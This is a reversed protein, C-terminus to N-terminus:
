HYGLEKLMQLQQPDVQNLDVLPGSVAGCNQIAEQLLPVMSHDPRYLNELEGPDKDLRYLEHSGSVPRYIYKWPGFHLSYSEAERGLSDGEAHHVEAYVERDPLSRSSDSGALLAAASAGDVDAFRDLSWGFLSAVTPLVDILRLRQEIRAGAPVKPGALIVPVHLQEEYLLGHTYFSHEGFAEGHDAVVVVLTQQLQNLAQLSELIRGLQQDMFRIEADYLDIRHHRKKLAARLAPHRGLRGQEPPLPFSVQDRLFDIPPLFSADHADFFHVLLAFPQEGKAHLWELVLETTDDAPRQPADAFRTLGYKDKTDQLDDHYEHFGRALGYHAGMPKASVFAATRLGEAAFLEAFSAVEVTLQQRGVIFLSRVGHRFPHCGTLLSAASVPTLSSSAYVRTLLAGEQALGDLIPTTPRQYGFCSLHDARTTDFIVLLLNRPREAVLPAASQETCSMLSLILLFSLKLWRLM